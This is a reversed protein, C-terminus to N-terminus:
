RFQARQRAGDACPLSLFVCPVAKATRMKGLRVAFPARRMKVRYLVKGHAKPFPLARCLEKGHTIHSARCLFPTSPWGRPSPTAGERSHAASFARSHHCEKGHAVHCPARCLITLACPQGRQEGSVRGLFSITYGSFLPFTTGFSQGLDSCFMFVLSM